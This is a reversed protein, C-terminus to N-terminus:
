GAGDGRHAAAHRGHELIGFVLRGGAASARFIFLVDGRALTCRKPM